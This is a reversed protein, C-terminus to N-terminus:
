DRRYTIRIQIQYKAASSGIETPSGTLTPVISRIRGGVMKPFNRRQNQRLIWAIVEDFFILNAQNTVVDAGYTERSAFIYNVTQIDAPVEEGLVNERYEISSPVAFISYETPTEALYDTQLRRDQQLVPCARFWEWLYGINSEEQRQM